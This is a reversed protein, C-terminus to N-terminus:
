NFYTENSAESKARKENIQTRANQFDQLPVRILYDVLDLGNQKEEATAKTELLDSVKISAIASIRRAKDTWLEFANLDPFLTVKRRQLVSCKDMNSIGEKNGAALWILDPVYGTAIIATKESEVIGIPRLPDRTLLHEGFFCQKLEYDNPNLIKHVWTIHPFPQKVRKGTNCEYLMIKGSRIRGLTDIQWFVTSGPWHKSTGIFYKAILDSTIQEGFLKILYQVFNNQDHHQLSAKFLDVPIISLPKVPKPTPQCYTVSERKKDPNAEFYHKPTFHYGCNDVRECRGVYTALHDGSETDIYRSFTKPHDCSPCTHRTKIGKYPELRYRYDNLM